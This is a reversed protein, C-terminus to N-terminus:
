RMSRVACAAGVRIWFMHTFWRPGLTKTASCSRSPELTTVTRWYTPPLAIGLRMDLEM